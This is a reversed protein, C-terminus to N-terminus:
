EIFYAQNDTISNVQCLCMRLVHYGAFVTCERYQGIPCSNGSCLPVVDQCNHGTRGEPCQCVFDGFANQQCVTNATCTTDGCVQQACDGTSFPTWKNQLHRYGLHSLRKLTERVKYFIFKAFPLKRCLKCFLCSLKILKTIFYTSLNQMANSTIVRYNSFLKKALEDNM